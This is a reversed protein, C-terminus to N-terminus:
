ESLANNAENFANDVNEYTSAMRREDEAPLKKQYAVRLAGKTDQMHRVMGQAVNAVGAPLAGIITTSRKALSELATNEIADFDSLTQKFNNACFAPQAAEVLLLAVYSFNLRM